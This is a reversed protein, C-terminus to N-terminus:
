KSAEKFAKEFLAPHHSYIYEVFKSIRKYSDLDQQLQNSGKVPSPQQIALVGEILNKVENMLVELIYIVLHILYNKSQLCFDNYKVYITHPVLLHVYM